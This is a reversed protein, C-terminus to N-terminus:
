HRLERMRFCFGKYSDVDCQPEFPVHLHREHSEWRDVTEYGLADMAAVFEDVATVRYPCIAFGINQLTFYSRHSHMPVLNVLVHRPPHALQELLEPLTYDLYQLAGSTFLVDCGDVDFRSHTFELHGAPDHRAAWERGANVVAPVDHVRWVLGTPYDLYRRFGYYSVGIHGGLDFVVRSGGAFLRSLWYVSPYDSVRIQDLHSRYMRGSAEVDYSTPLTPPAADVAEQYNDFVGYYSARAQFPRRFLRRYIPRSLLRIGPLEATDSAVRRLHKRTNTEAKGDM